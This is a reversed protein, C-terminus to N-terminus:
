MHPHHLGRGAVSGHGRARVPPKPGARGANRRMAAPENKQHGHRSQRGAPCGFPRQPRRRRRCGSPRNGAGPMPRRGPRAPSPTSPAAAQRDLDGIRANGAVGADCPEGPEVPRHGIASVGHDRARRSRRAARARGRRGRLASSWITVAARLRAAHATISAPCTRGAAVEARVIAPRRCCRDRVRRWARGAARDTRGRRRRRRGAGLRDSPM